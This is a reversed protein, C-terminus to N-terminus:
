EVGYRGYKWWNHCTGEIGVMCPGYPKEPTCAKGFLECEEPTAKATLILGCSCGPPLDQVEGVDIDYKERADFQCFESKIALGSNAIEGIGRWYADTVDFVRNMLKQARLNGQETVVRAYENEVKSQGKRMQKLTMLIAFLIDLPEFGTVIVPMGMEAFREYPRTGIITSVHGPAIVGDFNVDGDGVLADMAPPVLKHSSLISFNEPPKNFITAANSPATTEFGIGFFVVDNKTNSAMRVADNVSYAVKVDAGDAKAEALSMDSGPVRMMDGYTVLTAGSKALFIAEDIDKASTVCVPCGPGSLLELNPPLLARLGHKTITQEHTGCVHMIRVAEDLMLSHILRVVKKGLARDRFELSM